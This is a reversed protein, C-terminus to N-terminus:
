SPTDIQAALLSMFEERQMSRPLIPPKLIVEVVGPKIPVRWVSANWPWTAGVKVYVPIVAGGVAYALDYIGTRLPRVEGPELIKGHPFLVISRGKGVRRRGWICLMKRIRKPRLFGRRPLVFFGARRLLWGLLWINGVWSAMVFASNPVRALLVFIEFMSEHRPALVIPGRVARLHELGSLRCEVGFREAAYV